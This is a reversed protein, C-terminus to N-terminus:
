EVPEYEFLSPFYRKNYGYLEPTNYRNNGSNPAEDLVLKLFISFATNNPTRNDSNGDTGPIVCTSSVASFFGILLRKDLLNARINIIIKWFVCNLFKNVVVNFAVEVFYLGM